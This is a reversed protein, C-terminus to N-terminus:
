AVPVDISKQTEPLRLGAELIRRDCNRLRQAMVRMVDIAFHPAEDVLFYFRERDIVVFKCDTLATVTAFRPSGDIVALEGVFSGPTCKEFFLGAITVEAEGETLVYMAEGSDGERFLVEGRKIAIFEPDHRFMDFFLM